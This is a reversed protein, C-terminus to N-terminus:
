HPRPQPCQRPFRVPNERFSQVRGMPCGMQYSHIVEEGDQQRRQRDEKGSPDNQPKHDSRDPDKGQDKRTTQGM